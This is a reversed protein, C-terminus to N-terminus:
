TIGSVYVLYRGDHPVAPKVAPKQAAEVSGTEGASITLSLSLASAVLSRTIFMAPFGKMPPMREPITKRM